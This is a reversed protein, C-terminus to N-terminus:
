YSEDQTIMDMIRMIVRNLFANINSPSIEHQDRGPSLPNFITTVTNNQLTFLNTGYQQGGLLVQFQITPTTKSYILDRIVNLKLIPFLNFFLKRTKKKLKLHNPPWLNSDSLFIRQLSNHWHCRPSNCFIIPKTLWFTAEKLANLM